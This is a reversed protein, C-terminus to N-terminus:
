NETVTSSNEAMLTLPMALESFLAPLTLEMMWNWFELLSYLMTLRRHRLFDRVVADLPADVPVDEGEDDVDVIACEGLDGEVVLVARDAGEAVAGLGAASRGAVLAVRFCGAETPLVRLEEYGPDPGVLVAVMQERVRLPQGPKRLIRNPANVLARLPQDGASSLNSIGYNYIPHISISLPLRLCDLARPERQVLQAVQVLVQIGVALLGM